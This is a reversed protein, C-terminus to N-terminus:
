ALRKVMVLRNGRQEDFSFQVEDMLQRIIHLGLGGVKLLEEANEVTLSSPSVGTQPEPVTSPDFPQGNDQMVIRVSGPKFEYSIWIDGAGEEGYGHEIINTAAEDCCLELHFITDQDLGAAAAGDAVFRCIARIEDYHGPVKLIQQGTM